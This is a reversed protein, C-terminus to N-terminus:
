IEMLLWESKEGKGCQLISCTLTSSLCKTWFFIGAMGHMLKPTNAFGDIQRPASSRISFKSPLLILPDVKCENSPLALDRISSLFEGLDSIVIRQILRDVPATGSARDDFIRIAMVYKYCFFHIM